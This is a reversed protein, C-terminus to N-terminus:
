IQVHTYVEDHHDYYPITCLFDDIMEEAHQRLLALAAGDGETASMWEYEARSIAGFDIIHNDPLQKYDVDDYLRQLEGLLGDLTELHEITQDTAVDVLLWNWWFNNVGRLDTCCTSNDGGRVGCQDLDASCTYATYDVYCAWEKRLNKYTNRKSSFTDTVTITYDVNTLSAHSAWFWVNEGDENINFVADVCTSDELFFVASSDSVKTVYGTRKQHFFDKWEMEVKFRGKLLTETKANGVMELPQRNMRKFTACDRRGKQFELVDENRERPTSRMYDVDFSIQDHFVNGDAGLAKSFTKVAKHQTQRAIPTTDKVFVEVGFNTPNAVTTWYHGNTLKADMVQVVLDITGQEGFTFLRASPTSYILNGEGQEKDTLVFPNNPVGSEFHTTIEFREHVCLKNNDATCAGYIVSV